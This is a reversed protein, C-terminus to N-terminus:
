KMETCSYPRMASTGGGVRVVRVRARGDGVRGWGRGGEGEGWRM